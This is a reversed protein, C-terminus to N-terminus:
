ELLLVIRLFFSGVICSIHLKEKLIKFIHNELNQFQEFVVQFAQQILEFSFLSLFCAWSIRIKGRNNTTIRAYNNFTKLEPSSWMKIDSLTLQEFVAQEKGMYGMKSLYNCHSQYFYQFFYHKTTNFTFNRTFSLNM